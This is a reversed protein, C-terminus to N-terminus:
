SCRCSYTADFYHDPLVPMAEEIGSHIVKDLKKDAEQAAADVIEVGWVEAGLTRKLEAGMLGAACGVDLIKGAKSNVMAQVEPRSFGYYQKNANMKNEEKAHKRYIDQLTWELEDITKEISYKSSVEIGRQVLRKRLEADKVIKHMAEAMSKTNGPEVFLAYDHKDDYDKYAPIDTLVVPLGCALAEMAPRGFSEVYPYSGSILFDCENYLAAMEEESLNFRYECPCGINQVLQNEEPQQPTQSARIIKIPIQYTECFIRCAELCDRIGKWVVEYPGVIVVKITGGEAWAREQRPYFISHDIDNRVVYVKGPFKEKLFKGVHPSNAIKITPLNYVREIGSKQQQSLEPALAEYGRCYHVCIGKKSSFGPPVTPYWTGIIIDSPPIDNTSLDPSVIFDTHVDIWDPKATRCVICVRYGRDALGNAQAITGKVGGWKGADFLLYCVDYRKNSNWKKAEPNNNERHNMSTCIRANYKKAIESYPSDHITKLFIDMDLVMREPKQRNHGAQPCDFNREESKQPHDKMYLFLDVLNHTTVGWSRTFVFLIYANLLKQDPLSLDNNQVMCLAKYVMHAYPMAKIIEPPDAFLMSIYRKASEQTSEPPRNQRRYYYTEPLQYFNGYLSLEALMLTDPGLSTHNSTKLLRDKRFLGNIATSSITGTFVNFFTSFKGVNKPADPKNMLLVKGASDIVTAPSYVLITEPDNEFAKLYEELIDQRWLDHDAARLLYKGRSLDLISSFNNNAGINVSNRVYRIRKDKAAFERCISETGDESANDSIIMEFDPFTQDLLSQIAEAIYEDANFAPLMITISPNLISM